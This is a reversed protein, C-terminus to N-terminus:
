LGNIANIIMHHTIEITQEVIEQYGTGLIPTKGVAMRAYSNTLDDRIIKGPIKSLDINPREFGMSLLVNKHERFLKNKTFPRLIGDRTMFDAFISSAIKDDSKDLLERYIVTRSAEIGLVDNVQLINNSTTRRTDINPMAMVYSLNSGSTVISDDLRIAQDIGPVGFIVNDFFTLVGSIQTTDDLYIDYIGLINPSYAINKDIIPIDEMSLDNNKLEHTDLWIRLVTPKNFYEKTYKGMSIGIDYWPAFADNPTIISINRIFDKLCRYKFMNPSLGEGHVTMRSTANPIVDLIQQVSPSLSLISSSATGAKHFFSLNSQTANQMISQVAELGIPHGPISKNHLSM